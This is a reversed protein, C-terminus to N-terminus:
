TSSTLLRHNRSYLKKVLKFSATEALLALLIHISGNISVSSSLIWPQMKPLVKVTESELNLVALVMIVNADFTNVNNGIPLDDIGAPLPAM